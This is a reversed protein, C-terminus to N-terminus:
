ITFPFHKFVEVELDSVLVFLGIWVVVMCVYSGYYGWIEEGLWVCM